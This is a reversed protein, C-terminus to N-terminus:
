LHFSVCTWVYAFELITSSQAPQASCRFTETSTGAPDSRSGLRFSFCEYLNIWMVHAQLYSACANACRHGLIPPESAVSVLVLVTTVFTVQVGWSSPRYSKQVSVSGKAISSNLASRWQSHLLSSSIWPHLMALCPASTCV